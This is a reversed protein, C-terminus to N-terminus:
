APMLTAPVRWEGCPDRRTQDPPFAGGDGLAAARGAEGALLRSLPQAGPVQPLSRLGAVCLDAAAGPSRPAPLTDAGHDVRIRRAAQPLRKRGDPGGSLRIVWNRPVQKGM